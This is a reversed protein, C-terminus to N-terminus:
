ALWWLVILAGATVSFGDIIKPEALVVARAKLFLDRM